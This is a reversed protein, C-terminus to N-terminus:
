TQNGVCKNVPFSPIPKPIGTGDNSIRWLQGPELVYSPYSPHNTNSEWPATDFPSPGDNPFLWSGPKNNPATGYPPFDYPRPVINGRADMGLCKVGNQDYLISTKINPHTHVEALVTYGGAKLADLAREDYSSLCINPPLGPVPPWKVLETEGAPNRMIWAGVEAQQEVGKDWKTQEALDQLMKQVKPDKLLPDSVKSSDKFLDCAPAAVISAAYTQSAHGTLGFVDFTLPSMPTIDFRAIFKGAPATLSAQAGYTINDPNEAPSCDAPDILQLPVRAIEADTADYAVLDGYSGSCQIAGQGRISVGTVNGSLFTTITSPQSAGQFWGPTVSVITATGDDIADRRSTTPASGVSRSARLYYGRQVSDAHTFRHSAVPATVQPPVGRDSCAGAMLLAASLLLPIRVRQRAAVDDYCSRHATM